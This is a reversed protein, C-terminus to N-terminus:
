RREVMLVNPILTMSDFYEEHEEHDIFRSALGTSPGGDLNAAMSWAIDTDALVHALEYLSVSSDPVVGVYFNGVTDTGIFTRRAYQKSDTAVVAKGNKVLVPYTQFGDRVSTRGVGFVVQPSLGIMTTTKGTLSGQGIRTGDVVTYGIPMDKEDFYEGNIVLTDKADATLWERLPLAPIRHVFRAVFEHQDFRYIVARGQTSNKFWYERRAVGRGYDEWSTVNTTMDQFVAVRAVPTVVKKWLSDSKEVFFVVGLGVFGVIIVIISTRKQM